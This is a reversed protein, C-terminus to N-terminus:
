GGSSGTGPAPERTGLDILVGGKEPGARPFSLPFRDMDRSDVPNGECDIFADRTARWKIACDRTGPKRLAVATMQGSEEALWFGDGAFPNAFYLPGGEDIKDVLEKELGLYLPEDDSPTGRGGGTALLLAVAVLVGALVVFGVSFVLLRRDARSAPV